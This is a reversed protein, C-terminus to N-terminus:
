KLCVTSHCNLHLPHKQTVDKLGELLFSSNCYMKDVITVEPLDFNIYSITILLGFIDVKNAIYEKESVEAVCTSSFSLTFQNDYCM